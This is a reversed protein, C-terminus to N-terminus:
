KSGPSRSSRRHDVPRPMWYEIDKGGYTWYVAYFKDIQDTLPEIAIEITRHMDALEDYGAEPGFREEMDFQFVNREVDFAGTISIPRKEDDFYNRRNALRNAIVVIQAAMKERDTESMTALLQRTPTAVQARAPATEMSGLTILAGLFLKDMRKRHRPIFM